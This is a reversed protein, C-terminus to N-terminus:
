EESKANNPLGGQRMSGAACRNRNKRRAEFTRFKADLTFVYLLLAETFELIDRADEATIETDVDHAAENGVLRVGHAWNLLRADIRGKEKLNALRQSLVKGSTDLEKSLIELARRCMLACADYSSTSYSRRAQEFARDVSIPLGELKSGAPAPYLVTEDPPTEYVGCVGEVIVRVFFPSNCRRCLAIEYYEHHYREDFQDPPDSSAGEPGRAIIKAAVLINCTPCFVDVTEDEM